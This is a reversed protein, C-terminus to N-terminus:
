PLTQRKFAEWVADPINSGAASAQEYLVHEGREITCLTVETGAKCGTYTECVGSKTASGTCGNLTKWQDFDARASPFSGGNYPVLADATGRYMIVSIPRSPMCPRAGNGMSVPATAAFVDAARCALLHSMAGGNSLGTAYVRKADICGDGSIKRVVARMFGEDDVGRSQSTGCCLSGGNWSNSLGNPHAVIFGEKDAKARWGSVRAQAAAESTYGHIDIVLPVAKSGDYGAPVHLLFNRQAGAHSIMVTTDGPRLTNMTCSAAPVAGDPTGAEGGGADSMLTAGDGIPATAADGADGTASPSADMPAVVGTDRPSSGSSADSAATADPLVSADPASASADPMTTTPSTSAEITRDAGEEGGGCAAVLSLLVTTRLRALNWAM